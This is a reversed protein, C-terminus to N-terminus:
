SIPFLKQSHESSFSSKILLFYFPINVFMKGLKTVLLSLTLNLRLFFTAFEELASIM